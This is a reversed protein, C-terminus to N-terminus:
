IKGSNLGANFLIKNLEAKLQLTDLHSFKSNKIGEIMFQRAKIGERAAIRPNAHAPPSVLVSAYSTPASTVQASMQPQVPIKTLREEAEQFHTDIKNKAHEIMEKMDTTFETMQVNLADRVVENIHTDELEELLLAVARIANVVPKQVGPMASVQYLCTALSTHTPPEGPPCLLSLKELYKRGELPDKIEQLEETIPATGNRRTNPRVPVGTTPSSRNTDSSSKDRNSAIAPM